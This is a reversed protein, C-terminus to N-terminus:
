GPYIQGCKQCKEYRSFTQGNIVYELGEFGEIPIIQGPCVGAKRAVGTNPDIIAPQASDKTTCLTNKLAM